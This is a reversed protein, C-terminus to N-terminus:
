SRRPRDPLIEAVLRIWKGRILLEGKLQVDKATDPHPDKSEMELGYANIFGGEGLSPWPYGEWLVVRRPKKSKKM